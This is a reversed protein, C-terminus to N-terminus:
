PTPNGKAKPAPFSQLEGKAKGEEILISMARDIPISFTKAQPDYGYSELREMESARLEQLSQEGPLASANRARDGKSYELVAVILGGFVGLVVVAAIVTAWPIGPLPPLQGVTNSNSEDTVVCECFLHSIVLSGHSVLNMSKM